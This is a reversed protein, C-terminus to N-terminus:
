SKKKKKKWKRRGRWAFYWLFTLSLKRGCWSWLEMWLFEGTHCCTVLSTSLADYRQFYRSCFKLNQVIYIVTVVGVIYLGDQWAQRTFFGGPKRPVSLNMVTSVLAQYQLRCQAQHMWDWLVNNLKLFCLLSSLGESCHENEVYLVSWVLSRWSYWEFNWTDLQLSKDTHHGPFLFLGVTVWAHRLLRSFHTAVRGRPSIFVSVQDELTLTPRPALL